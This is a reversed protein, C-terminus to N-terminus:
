LEKDDVNIMFGYQKLIEALKLADEYKMDKIELYEQWM